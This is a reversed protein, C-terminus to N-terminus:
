LAGTFTLGRVGVSQGPLLTMCEKQINETILVIWWAIFIIFGSIKKCVV